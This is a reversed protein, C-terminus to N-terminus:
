WSYRLDIRLNRGSADIGSGHRRYREDFLNLGEIRINLRENARWDVRVNATIWGDTGEPDIRSDRIDRSSLRDQEAAFQLYPELFWSGGWDIILAARGNFPPVRDAPETLGDADDQEGRSYNLVIESQVRDSLRARLWGELGWLEASARNQTQVIDRGDSTVDGTLVSTIRDDYDFRWVVLEGQVREGARRLGLDMQTIHESGLGTNPINFRNGPREGLTGLDFVNPARFGYGINAVLQFGDGLDFRGGLDASVDDLDVSSAPSLSTRALDVRVATFRLGGSVTLRSTLDVDANLFIAAQDVTSEDPFRSPVESIEGTGLDIERRRSSVEDTYAEVGAVWGGGGHQGTATLSMGFLDSANDEVRRVDSGTNRSLRDDVIRQWGLDLTWDADLWGQARSHRLHVFSRENPAFFFEESAPETEGFGAVLEDIRPTKPQVGHQLDILWSSRDDPSITMAARFSRASYGTPGIREGGGIRRDGTDLYNASVLAAVYENGAEFTAFGARQQEATDATIGFEARQEVASGDFHPMRNVVQVVGGVADSGYLSAPSGRLLEIREITAPSVLALYQTPANRFIANNMRLGDVLHLVESGKLGRVIAAGQGPTTQQLFVGPQGALADTALSQGRIEEAGILTVAPTVDSAAVPRRTATVQIEDIVDDDDVQAAAPPIVTAAVAAAWIAPLFKM